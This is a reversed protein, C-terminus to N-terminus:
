GNIWGGKITFDSNIFDKISYDYIKIQYVGEEWNDPILFDFTVPETCKYSGQCVDLSNLNVGASNHIIAEENVGEEGPVVTVYIKEGSYTKFPSVSIKSIKKNIVRGTISEISSSILAVVIVLFALLLIKNDKNM